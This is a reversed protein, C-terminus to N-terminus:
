AHKPFPGVPFPHEDRVFTIFAILEWEYQLLALAFSKVEDSFRGNIALLAFQVVALAFLIHIVLWAILGYGIAYLLRMFPFPAQQPAVVPPPGSPPTPGPPTGASADTM